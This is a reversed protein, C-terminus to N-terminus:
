GKNIAIVFYRAPVSGTNKLGHLEGSAAYAVGGPEVMAPKGNATFEISGERILMFEEHRRRHAPHPMQGPLLTTEHLEVYEGIPLTGQVIHHSTAGSKNHSVPLQDFNFVRSHALPSSEAAPTQGKALTSGLLALAPLAQLLNRRTMDNM